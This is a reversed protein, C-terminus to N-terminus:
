VTRNVYAFIQGIAKVHTPSPNHVYCALKGITFAIDPRTGLMLYMLSGIMSQYVQVNTKNTNEVPKPNDVLSVNPLMPVPSTKNPKVKFRELMANVYREQDLMLSPCEDNVMPYHDRTVQISLFYHTNSLLSVEYYKRIECEFNDTLEKDGIPFLNDVYVPLILTKHSGKVVKHTVFLHANSKVQTLRFKFMTNRLEQYWAHGAQKLGYLAKKLCLVQGEEHQIGEPYEM